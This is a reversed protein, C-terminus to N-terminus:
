HKKIIKFSQYARWSKISGIYVQRLTMTYTQSDDFMDAPLALEWQRPPVKTKYIRAGALAQYGKYIRLDYYDRQTQNGEHPSWKFILESKGTLDYTDLYPQLIRPVPIADTQGVDTYNVARQAQLPIAMCLSVTVLALLKYPHRM